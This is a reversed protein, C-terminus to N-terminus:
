AAELATALLRKLDTGMKLIKPPKPPKHQQRSPWPQRIKDRRRKRTDGRAQELRAWYTRQQRPGLYMGTVDRIEERIALLVKRPSPLMGPPPGTRLLVLSGQALLLQVALLSCEAERHVMALTHSMLKVKGLTRKYTRFLGENRWRWRYFQSAMPRTLREADLVNTILWVDAHRGHIRLLRVKVPALGQKQAAQPWYYVEGERFRRLAMRETAYLPARSSLRMLFWIGQTHLAHLLEYGPYGADAVLLTSAPLTRILQRLHNRESADGKGLRWSWLLGLALHVIATVWVQPTGQSGEGLRQQLQATRSCALRSGDCGLPIFGNIKFQESFLQALRRRVIDGVRRLVATPLRILAKVFGESTKGPRRKRQYTAIYFAKATEFREGLSDGTCWTMVLVVFVLPQPRWRLSRGPRFARFAQQVQKWVQATLFHSLCELFSGASPRLRGKSQVM